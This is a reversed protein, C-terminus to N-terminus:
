TFLSFQQGSKCYNECQCEGLVGKLFSFQQGSKCCNKYQMRGISMQIPQTAPGDQRRAFMTVLKLMSCRTHIINHIGEVVIHTSQQSIHHEYM